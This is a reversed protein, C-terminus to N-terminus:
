ADALEDEDAALEDDPRGCITRVFGCRRKRFACSSVM